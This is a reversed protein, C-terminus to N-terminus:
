EYRLAVLPDVRTARLAPGLCALLTVLTLLAAMLLFPLPAFGEIGYLAGRAIRVLASAGAAGAIMGAVALLLGQRLVLRLVDGQEAGMAMRIGFENARQAVSYAMVSYIGLAALGLAVTSFLGILLTLFRPRAQARGIVEEMLRVNSVPLSPDLERVAARIAGALRASDGPGRAVVTAGRASTTQLLPFYLETGAPRDLGMNRVDALVGVVTMWPGSFGPRIRRGIASEGPYFRRALAENVLLVPTAGDGDADTLLRGEILEIGLTAMYGPTVSNWYDVNQIPGGLQQRFGEFQTDNANIPRLPPVGTVLGASAVGPLARLRADLSRWFATIRAPETYTQRPLTVLMTIVNEPRLGTQVRQLRWFAGIMMAAGILLVLALAMEAAVLLRRLLHAGRTATNRAGAAKLAEAVARPLSQVLPALGFFAGTALTLLAAFGFVAWDLGVEQARPLSTEATRLILRLAVWAMALGALAGGLALLVGEILFQRVLEWTSAGMARRVAIERQRTEARALLLNAVNGCAILLVFGVAAFMAWLAPKVSGTVEAQLGSAALTHTNPNFSHSNPSAAAGLANVYQNLEQQAQELTANARLRGLLYFRHGGRGGPSAPNLQLPAWIEVPDVEGPPFQFSAPMIGIVNVKRGDVQIERGLIGPDGGFQRRWLNESMVVSAPAGFRDDEPGILRGQVPQVALTQLLTGSVLAATARVPESSGTVNVGAVQWADLTEWRKLDRRMELFEPGSTWFKRMAGGPWAPWETYLRALRGPDKYPLPRLLVANVVSFIATTAGIGLALCALAALTFGPTRRLGRLTLRFDSQM